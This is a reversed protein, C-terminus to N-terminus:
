IRSEGRLRLILCVNRYVRICKYKVGMRGMDEDIEDWRRVGDRWGM